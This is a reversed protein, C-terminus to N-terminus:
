WQLQHPQLGTDRLILPLAVIVSLVNISGLVNIMSMTILFINNKHGGFRRPRQPTQTPM